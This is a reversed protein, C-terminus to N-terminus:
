GAAYGAEKLIHRAYRPDIGAPTPPIEIALSEWRHDPFRSMARGFSAAKTRALLCVESVERALFWSFVTGSEALVRAKAKEVLEAVCGPRAFLWQEFEDAHQLQELRRRYQEMAQFLRFYSIGTAPDESMVMLGGASEQDFDSMQQMVAPVFPIDDKPDLDEGFVFADLLDGLSGYAQCRRFALGGEIVLGQQILGGGRLVSFRRDSLLAEPNGPRIAPMDALDRSRPRWVLQVPSVCGPLQLAFDDQVKGVRWHGAVRFVSERWDFTVQLDFPPVQEVTLAEENLQTEDAFLGASADIGPGLAKRWPHIDQFVLGAEVNRRPDDSGDDLTVNSGPGTFNWSGIALAHATKWIKAHCFEVNEGRPHPSDHFTLLGKALEEEIGKSFLTRIHMGQLRDPVLHVRMAESASINRLRRLFGALDRPLYPSWVALDQTGSEGLLVDLLTEGGLSHVFSWDGDIDPLGRREPLGDQVGAAEAVRAFFQRVSRYQAKTEVPRFVFVEQNRGWGSLTLNASGAGILRNGDVDELYIVKPHFLSDESFGGLTAPLIGQVPVATRKNRGAGMFRRDCFIQIDLKQKQNLAQEAYVLQLQEYDLRTRPFETQLIVPLLYKEFFEIDLDFTTLWAYSLQGLGARQARFTELLKM